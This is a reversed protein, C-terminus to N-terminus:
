LVAKWAAALGDIEEKTRKETVAVLLCDDYAPYWQGLPVGAHYGAEVLKPLYGAAPGPTQVVFEKFFVGPFRIKLGPVQALQQAAYHANHWCLEAMEKLGQPGVLSLFVSARLALLGQNTCINSTAKERRIHQERTQLTLVFARRGLRDVTQGVVRGPLKRLFKEKCAFIGLFPGGYSLPTGLSQGEAVAVDVGYDGPRKMLGVSVPDFAQIVPAGAAKALEVVKAIPELRGFFNPHQLGICATQDSVTAALANLDTAGGPAPITVLEAGLNVLYTALSQRYEPHVSESVVIPGTRGSNARAMLVAEVFATAGDYM